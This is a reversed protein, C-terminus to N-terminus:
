MQQINNPIVQIEPISKLNIRWCSLSKTLTECRCMGETCRDWTLDTAVEIKWLPQEVSRLRREVDSLRHELQTEKYFSESDGSSRLKLSDSKDSEYNESLKSIFYDKSFIKLVECADLPCEGNSALLKPIFDRACTQGILLFALLWYM